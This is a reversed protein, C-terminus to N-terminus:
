GLDASRSLSRISRVCVGTRRSTPRRHHATTSPAATSTPPPETQINPRVPWPVGNCVTVAFAAGAAAALPAAAGPAVTVAAFVGPAVEAVPDKNSADPYTTANRSAVTEALLM